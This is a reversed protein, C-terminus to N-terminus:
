KIRVCFFHANDTMLFSARERKSFNYCYIEGYNPGYSSSWVWGLDKLFQFKTNTDIELSQVDSLFNSVVNNENGDEKLKTKSDCGIIVVSAFFLIAINNIMRM